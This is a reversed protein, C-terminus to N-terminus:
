PTAPIVAAVWNVRYYRSLRSPAYAADAPDYVRGRRDLVVYHDDIDTRTQDVNVLHRDAWPRPPWPKRIAGDYWRVREICQVAYGQEALFQFLHEYTVGCLTDCFRPALQKVRAYPLDLLMALCAIGCGSDGAQEQWVMTDSM